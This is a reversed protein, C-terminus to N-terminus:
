ITYFSFTEYDNRFFVCFLFDAIANLFCILIIYAYLRHLSSYASGLRVSLKRKSLPFLHFDPSCSRPAAHDIIYAMVPQGTVTM